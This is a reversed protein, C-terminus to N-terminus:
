PACRYVEFSQRGEEPASSPVITDGGLRAAEDRGLNELEERIKWDQRVFVGVQDPVKAQATGLRECDGVAAEGVVAVRDAEPSLPVWTCAAGLAVALVIGAGRASWSM